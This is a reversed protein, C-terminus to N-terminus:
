YAAQETLLRAVDDAALPRSFLFDQVEDWPQLLIFNGTKLDFELQLSCDASIRSQVAGLLLALIGKSEVVLFHGILHLGVDFQM